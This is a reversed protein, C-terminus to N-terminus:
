SQANLFSTQTQIQRLLRDLAAYQQQLRAQYASIREEKTRIEDTLDDVEDRLSNKRLTLAGNEQDDLFDVADYVREAVGTTATQGIFLNKVATYNDTLAEDLMAEDLTIKGDQGTKFGIEGVTTYTTLGSVVDDLEDRLTTVITRAATEGVFLGKAKTAADYTTRDNVFGVIDNYATILSKVNTKLAATDRAVNVTVTGAGTTEKLTLTVGSIADDFTNSDRQITVPNLAQDGVQIISDQAAQLTDTGGTGSANLLDLTTGDAVITIANDAGTNNSTMVLRYAPTAPTGANVISANVGAGLNNIENKLDELTATASLTITQNSGTGVKFTFTASAGSVIDTTEAATAKASKNTISHATALQTVKVTYSGPTATSGATVGLADTDTVSATNKDYTSSSRLANAASQLALLKTGLTGYDTMRTQATKKTGNLREVPIRELSVLQSVVQGFDVGNGLGGFSVAM